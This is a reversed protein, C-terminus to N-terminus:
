HGNPERALIVEGARVCLVPVLRQQATLQQRNSDVATWPAEELRLVSV